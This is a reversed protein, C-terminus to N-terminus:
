PAERPHPYPSSSSRGWSRTSRRWRRTPTLRWDAAKANEEVQEPSRRAPSSAASTPSARWGASDGARGDHPRAGPRVRRAERAHRLQEDTLIRGAFPSSAASAPARRRRRTRATSAPSSAAPWRSSPCSASATSRAAGPVLEGEIRASWCATSTRPASSAADPAGDQAIWDAEVVQWGTYNSCGIYRVKGSRVMDDLARLTEEIPTKPDPFHMQYLDIYDTDLRRLCDDLADMLYSAPPAAGTRAKAWRRRRSPPSSSTAATRSSAGAGPVGGVQRPRLRRRHRLLTIGMEICKNVVVETQPLTSAAASTTAASASSRSRLGSNGLNRYEM